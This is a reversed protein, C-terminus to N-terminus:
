SDLNRTKWLVIGAQVLGIVIFVAFLALGAVRVKLAHTGELFVSVAMSVILFALAVILMPGLTQYVILLRRVERKPM